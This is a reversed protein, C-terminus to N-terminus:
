EEEPPKEKQPQAPAPSKEARQKKRQPAAPTAKEEPKIILTFTVHLDATFKVGIEHSGLKKIPRPLQIYHEDIAIDHHEKLLACVRARDVSGYLQERTTSKETITIDVGALADAFQQFEQRQLARKQEVSKILKEHQKLRAPTAVVVIGRPLLYNRAYGPAVKKVDGKLGLHPVDQLLIVQMDLNEKAIIIQHCISYPNYM